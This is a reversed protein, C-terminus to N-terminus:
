PAGGDFVVFEDEDDYVPPVVPAPVLIPDTAVQLRWEMQDIQKQASDIGFSTQPPDFILRVRLHVYTKVMNLRPDAGLLDGWEAIDDEVYLGEPPGVGIQALTSLATNIGTIVDLDFATYEPALGLIKKTSSLISNNNM